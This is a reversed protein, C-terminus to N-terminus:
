PKKEKEKHLSKWVKLIQEKKEIPEVRLLIAESSGTAVTGLLFIHTEGPKSTFELGSGTWHGGAFLIPGNRLQGAVRPFAHTHRCRLSTTTPLDGVVPQLPSIVFLARRIRQDKEVKVSVIKAIFVQKSRKIVSQFPERERPPRTAHVILPCSLLLLAVVIRKM